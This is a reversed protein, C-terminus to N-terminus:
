QDLLKLLDALRSYVPKSYLRSIVFSVVGDKGETLRLGREVLRFGWRVLDSKIKEDEVREALLLCIEAGISSADRGCNAMSLDFTDTFCFKSPDLAFNIYHQPIQYGKDHENGSLELLMLIPQHLYLCPTYSNAGYHRQFQQIVYHDFVERIELARGNSKMVWIIPFLIMISNHVNRLEMKPMLNQLVDECVSTAMEDNGTQIHWLASLSIAQACRDSGYYKAIANSHEGVNYVERLCKVMDLARHWQSFRGYMDAQMALARTYHVPDGHLKTERVFNGVLEEEYKMGKGKELGYKILLFLGSFIPFALSRDKMRQSAPCSQFIQM